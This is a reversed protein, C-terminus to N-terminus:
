GHVNEAFLIGYEQGVNQSLKSGCAKYTPTGYIGQMLSSSIQLPNFSANELGTLINHTTAFM